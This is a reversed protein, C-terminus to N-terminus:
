FPMGDTWSVPENHGGVPRWAYEVEGRYELDGRRDGPLPDTAHSTCGRDGNLVCREHYSHDDNPCSSDRQKWESLLRAEIEPDSIRTILPHSDCCWTCMPGVPNIGERRSYEGPHIDDYKSGCNGCSVTRNVEDVVPPRSVYKNAPEGPVPGTAENSFM